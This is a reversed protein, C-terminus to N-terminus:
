AKTTTYKVGTSSVSVVVTYGNSAKVTFGTSSNVASIKIRGVTQIETAALSQTYTTNSADAYYAAFLGLATKESSINEPSYDSTDKTEIMWATYTQYVAAAEQEAASKKAKNIYGTLSPILVAALIGIIAIVVILETLTFAKEKRLTKM